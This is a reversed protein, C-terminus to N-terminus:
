NQTGKIVLYKKKKPVTFIEIIEDDEEGDDEEVSLDVYKRKKAQQEAEEALSILRASEEATLPFEDEPPPQDPPFPVSQEQIAQAVLQCYKEKYEDAKGQYFKYKNYFNTMQPTTM